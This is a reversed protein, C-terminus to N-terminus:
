QKVRNDEAWLPQLNTYHVAKRFEEINSLNFSALGVIHDIHWGNQSWNDWTMGEQFQDEIYKKLFEISCGLDDVASGTKQGNRIAGGLRARLNDRLKIETNKRSRRKYERVNKRVLDRNDDYWLKSSKKRKLKYKPSSNYVKARKNTCTKCHSRFTPKRGKDNRLPFDILPKSILCKKCNKM